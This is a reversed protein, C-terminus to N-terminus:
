FSMGDWLATYKLVLKGPTSKEFDITVLPKTVGREKLEGRVTDTFVGTAARAWFKESVSDVDYTGNLWEDQKMGDVVTIYKRLDPNDKGWQALEKGQLPYWRGGIEKAPLSPIMAFNPNKKLYDDAEGQGIRFQQKAPDIVLEIEYTGGKVVGNPVTQGKLFADPVGCKAVGQGGYWVGGPAIFNPQTAAPNLKIQGGNVTGIGTAKYKLDYTKVVKEDNLPDINATFNASIDRPNETIADNWTIRIIRSNTPHNSLTGIKKGSADLVDVMKTTFLLNGANEKGESGAALTPILEIETTQGAKLAGDLNPITLTVQRTVGGRGNTLTQVPGEGGTVKLSSNALTGNLTTTATTAEAAFAPAIGSVTPVAALALMPLATLVKKSTTKAM